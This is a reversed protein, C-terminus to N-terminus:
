SRGLNKALSFAGRSAINKTQEFVVKRMQNNCIKRRPKVNIKALAHLYNSEDHLAVFDVITGKTYNKTNTWHKDELVVFERGKLVTEGNENKTLGIKNARCYDLISVERAKKMEQYLLGGREDFIAPLEGRPNDRGVKTFRGYDTEGHGRDSASKPLLDGKAGLRDGKGIAAAGIDSRIRDRLGPNRKFREDNDEFANILGEKDFNKGLSRGRVAKTNTGYLYSINKNEVRVDVGLGNLTGVYEDFSTSYGLARAPREGPPPREVQPFEPKIRDLGIVFLVCL